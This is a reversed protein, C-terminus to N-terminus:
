AGEQQSGTGVTSQLYHILRVRHDMPAGERKVAAVEGVDEDVEFGHVLLHAVRCQADEPLARVGGGGKGWPFIPESNFVLSASGGRGAAAAAAM